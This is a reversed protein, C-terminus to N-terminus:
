EERTPEGHEANPLGRRWYAKSSIQDPGLGRERLVGGVDRVVRAEAALYAHGAGSRLGVATVAQLLADADGPTSAGLRHLWRLDLHEVASADPEQEDDPTDIELIATALSGPPLSEMMALAGPIGTEDVVFLHWDAAPDVTVKGRPGIAAIHDRVKAPAFGTRERGPVM